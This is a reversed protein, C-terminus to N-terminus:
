GSKEGRGAVIRDADYASRSYPEHDEAIFQLVAPDRAIASHAVRKAGLQGPPEGAHAGLHNRGLVDRVIQVRDYGCQLAICALAIDDDGGTTGRSARAVVQVSSEGRCGPGEDDVTDRHPRAM